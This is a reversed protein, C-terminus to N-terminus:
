GAPLPPPLPVGKAERLWNWVVTPFPKFFERPGPFWNHERMLEEASVEHRTGSGAPSVLREVSLRYEPGGDMEERLGIIRFVRRLVWRRDLSRAELPELTLVLSGMPLDTYEPEASRIRDRFRAVTWGSEELVERDLLHALAVRDARDTM